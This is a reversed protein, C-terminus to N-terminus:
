QLRRLVSFRGQVSLRGVATRNRLPFVVLNDVHIVPAQVDLTQLFRQLQGHTAEFNLSVPIQELGDEERTNIVQSGAVSIGAGDALARLRQQLEAGIRDAATSAPYTFRALTQEAAARAERVPLSAERLGILRALRPEGVEVTEAAWIAKHVLYGAAAFVPVLVIFACFGVAFCARARPTELSFFARTM